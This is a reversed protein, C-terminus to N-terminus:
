PYTSQKSALTNNPIRQWNKVAKTLPYCNNKLPLTVTRLTAFCHFFGDHCNLASARRKRALPLGTWSACSSQPNKTQQQKKFYKSTNKLQKPVRTFSAGV